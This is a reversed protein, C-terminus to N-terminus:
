SEEIMELILEVDALSASSKKRRTKLQNLLDAAEPLESATTASKQKLESLESRLEACTKKLESNESRVEALAQETDSLEEWIEEGRTKETELQSRLKQV